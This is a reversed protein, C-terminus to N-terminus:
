VQYIEILKKCYAKVDYKAAFAIAKQSMHKYLEPSNVLENIKNAFLEPKRDWIMFGNESEKILDRNGKGDTTIVPMGAAMAEILALGFAESKSAHIFIHGKKLFTEPSNQQGIFLISDLLNKEEALKKCQHLTNGDGIFTLKFKEKDLLEFCHILFDQSKNNNFTGLSILEIPFELSKSKSKFKSYDICNALLFCNTKPQSIRTIAFEYLDKSIAISFVNKRKLLKIYQKKEWLHIIKTKLGKTESTLFEKRKSHLHSFFKTKEIKLQYSVLDAEYLHSHIIHPKFDSITKELEEIKLKNKRLISPTYSSPITKINLQRTLEPYENNNQFLILLVDHGQNQLENCIDICIREAGGRKLNPIIHIIKMIM